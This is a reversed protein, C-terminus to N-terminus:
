EEVTLSKAFNNLATIQADTLGDVLKRLSKLEQYRVVDNDEVPAGYVKARGDNYVEFANQRIWTTPDSGMGNGVEFLTNNKDDNNQGLVVKYSSANKNTLNQGHLFGGTKTNECNIGSVFSYSANNTIQKGSVLTYEGNNTINEGSVVSFKRSNTILNGILLSDSGNPNNISNSGFVIGRAAYNKNGYGAILAQTGDNTNSWGFITSYTGNENNTNKYGHVFSCAANNVSLQGLVSATNGTANCGNGIAVSRKGSAISNKGFALSELGSAECNEGFAIAGMSTASSPSTMTGEDNYTFTSEISNEIRVKGDMLVEFANSRGGDRTGNGLEFLTNDKPDNWIGGVIRGSTGRNSINGIGIILQADGNAENESGGIISAFSNNVNSDGITLSNSQMVTNACGGTISSKGIIVNRLGVVLSNSGSNKNLKGALLTRNANNENAEGFIAASEGYLISGDEDKIPEGKDDLVYNKNGFHTADVEGSYIQVISDLGEGNEINLDVKVNDLVWEETALTGSEEPLLNSITQAVQTTDAPDIIERVISDRMYSTINSDNEIVQLASRASNLQVRSDVSEAAIWSGIPNLNTLSSGRVILSSEFFKNLSSDYYPIHEHAFSEEVVPLIGSSAPFKLENVKPAISGIGSTIKICDVQYSADMKKTSLNYVSFSDPQLRSADMGYNKTSEVYTSTMASSEGSTGVTAIDGGNLRISGANADILTVGSASLQNNASNWYLLASNSLTKPNVTPIVDYVDDNFAFKTINTNSDESYTGLGVQLQGSLKNYIPAAYAQHAETFISENFPMNAPDTFLTRIIEKDASSTLPQNDFTFIYDGYPIIGYSDFTFGFAVSRILNENSMSLEIMLDPTGSTTNFVM